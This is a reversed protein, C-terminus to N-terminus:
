SKVERSEVPAHGRRERAIGVAFIVLLLGTVLMAVIAGSRKPFYELVLQPVFVLVGIAGIGLMPTEDLVVGRWILAAATALGLWLLVSRGDGAAAVTAGILAAVSGSAVALDTPKHWGGLALLVWAVAVAWIAIASWNVGGTFAPRAFATGVVVLLSSFAALQPFARRRFLYLPAALAFMILAVTLVIDRIRWGMVGLSFVSNLWDAGEPNTLVVATLWGTGGIAGVALVSILRQIPERPNGRLTFAAGALILTLLAVVALRGGFNLDEWRDGLLIAIAALAIAAGVYGIAEAVPAARGQPTTTSATRSREFAAIDKVQKATLIGAGRWDTLRDALDKM